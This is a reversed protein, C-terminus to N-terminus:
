SRAKLSTPHMARSREKEATESARFPSEPFAAYYEREVMTFFKIFEDADWESWDAWYGNMSAWGFIIEAKDLEWGLDETAIMKQIGNM